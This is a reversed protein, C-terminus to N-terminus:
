KKMSQAIKPGGSRTGISSVVIGRGILGYPSDFSAKSFFEEITRGSVISHTQKM